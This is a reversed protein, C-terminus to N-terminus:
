ALDNGRTMDDKKEATKKNSRKRERRLKEVGKQKDKHLLDNSRQTAARDMYDAETKDGPLIPEPYKSYLANPYEKPRPKWDTYKALFDWKVKGQSKGPTTAAPSAAGAGGGGGGMTQDAPLKLNPREPRLSGKGREGGLASTSTPTSPTTDRPTTIDPLKGVSSEEKVAPGSPINGKNGPRPRHTPPKNVTRDKFLGGSSTTKEFEDAPGTSEASSEEDSYDADGDFEESVNGSGFGKGNMRGGKAKSEALLTTYLGAM